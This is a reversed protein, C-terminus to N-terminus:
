AATSHELGRVVGYSAAAAATGVALTSVAGWILGLVGNAAGTFWAKAVGFIILIIGTALISWYLGHLASSVVLYPIIPILGGIFYSIGITFASLFLRSSPVEEMGEGYKLLFATTGTTPVPKRRFRNRLTHVINRSSPLRQASGSGMSVEPRAIEQANDVKQLARAVVRSVGQSVGVDGLVDHVEREIESECAVGLKKTYESYKHRFTDQEAKAALYGGIGMSLAGSILEAFGGQYVLKSSGLSSLGATLAFPVMLGDSLGIIVDRVVDHSIISRKSEIRDRCCTKEPGADCADSFQETDSGHLIQCYTPLDQDNRPRKRATHSSFSLVREVPWVKGAEKEDQRENIRRPLKVADSTPLTEGSPLDSTAPAAAAAACACLRSACGSQAIPSSSLKVANTVM